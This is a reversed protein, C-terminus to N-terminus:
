DEIEQTCIVLFSYVVNDIQKYGETHYGLYISGSPVSEGEKFTKVAWYQTENSFVTPVVIREEKNTM